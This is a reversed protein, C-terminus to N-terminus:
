NGDSDRKRFIEEVNDAMTEAILRKNGSVHTIEDNRASIIYVDNEATGMGILSVENAVVMDLEGARLSEKARSILEDETIGTEAKFGVISIDPHADRAEGILKRTSRFKLNLDGGSKIKNDQADLTYDSIAAASILM